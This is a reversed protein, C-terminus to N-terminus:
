EEERCPEPNIQLCFHPPLPETASLEIYLDESTCGQRGCRVRYIISDGTVRSESIVCFSRGGKFSVQICETGTLGTLLLVFLILLVKKM